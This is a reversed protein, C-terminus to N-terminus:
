TWCSPSVGCASSPQGYQAWRSRCRRLRLPTDVTRRNRLPAQDRLRLRSRDHPPCASPRLGVPREDVVRARSAATHFAACLDRRRRKRRQRFGVAPSVRIRRTAGYDTSALLSLVFFPVYVTVTPLRRSGFSVIVTTLSLVSEM